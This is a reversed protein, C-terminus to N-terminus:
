KKEREDYFDGLKFRINLFATLLGFKGNDLKSLRISPGIAFSNLAFGEAINSVLIEALIQFNRIKKLTANVRFDFVSGVLRSERTFLGINVENYWYGVYFVTRTSGFMRFPYRFEALLNSGTVINNPMRTSDKQNVFTYLPPGGGPVVGTEKIESYVGVEFFNGLPITYTLEIGRPPTFVANYQKWPKNETSDTGLDHTNLERIRTVYSVNVGLMQFGMSVQDSEFPGSYKTGMGFTFGISRKVPIGLREWGFLTFYPNIYATTNRIVREKKPPAIFEKIKIQRIVDLFVSAYDLKKQNLNEKNTGTWNKLGDQVRKSLQTWAFRQSSPDLEDGLVVFQNQPNPDSINIVLTFSELKPDIGMDDQAIIFISDDEARALIKFYNWTRPNNPDEQQSYIDKTSSFVFGVILLMFLFLISDFKNKM